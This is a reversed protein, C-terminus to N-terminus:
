QKIRGYIKEGKEIYERLLDLNMNEMNEVYYDLVDYGHTYEVSCCNGFNLFSVSVLVDNDYKCLDVFNPKNTIKYRVYTEIMREYMVHVPQKVKLIIDMIEERLAMSRGIYRHIHKKKVTISKCKEYNYGQISNVYATFSYLNIYYKNNESMICFDIGLYKEDYLYLNFTNKIPFFSITEVNSLNDTFAKEIATLFKEIDTFFGEDDKKLM